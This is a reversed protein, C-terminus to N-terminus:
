PGHTAMSSSLVVSRAAPVNLHGPLLLEEARGAPGRCGRHRDHRASTRRAAPEPVDLWRAPRTPGGPDGSRTREIGADVSTCWSQMVYVAGDPGILEYVTSDAAFSFMATRAVRRENYPSPDFGASGLNFVAARAMLIGGFDHVDPTPPGRSRSPISWGTARGTPWPRWRGRPQPSAPSTSSQGVAGAPLRQAYLHQLGRCLPGRRGSKVLLIEGYRQGRIDQLTRTVHTPATM